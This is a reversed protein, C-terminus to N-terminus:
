DIIVWPDKDIDRNNKKDRIKIDYKFCVPQNPPVLLSKKFDPKDQQDQPEGWFVRPDPFDLDKCPGSAPVPPSQRFDIGSKRFVFRSPDSSKIKWRIGNYGQHNIRIVDDVTINGSDDISISAQHEAKAAVQVRDSRSACGAILGAAVAAALGVAFKM